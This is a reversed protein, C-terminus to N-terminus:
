LSAAGPPPAPSPCIVMGICLWHFTCIPALDKAACCVEHYLGRYYEYLSDFQEGALEDSDELSGTQDYLKRRCKCCAKTGLLQQCSLGLM